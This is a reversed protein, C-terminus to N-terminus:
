HEEKDQVVGKIMKMLEIGTALQWNEITFEVDGDPAEFDLNLGVARVVHAITGRRRLERIRDRQMGSAQNNRCKLEMHIMCNPLHPSYVQLDPWGSQQMAHGHVNFVLAGGGPGELKKILAPQFEKTEHLFEARM